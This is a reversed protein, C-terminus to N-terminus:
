SRSPRRPPRPANEFDIQYPFRREARSSTRPSGYGAPRAPRQPRSQSSSGSGGGRAAMTAAVRRSAAGPDPRFIPICVDDTFPRRRAPLEASLEPLRTTPGARIPRSSGNSRIATAHSRRILVDQERSWSDSIPRFGVPRRELGLDPRQWSAAEHDDEFRGTRSAIALTTAGPDLQGTEMLARGRIGSNYELGFLRHVRPLREVGNLDRAPDVPCRTTRPMAVNSDGGGLGLPDNPRVAGTTPDYSRARM